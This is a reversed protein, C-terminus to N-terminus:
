GEAVNRAKKVQKLCAKRHSNRTNNQQQDIVLFLIM